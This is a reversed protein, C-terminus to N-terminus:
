LPREDVRTQLGFYGYGYDRSYCFRGYAGRYALSQM